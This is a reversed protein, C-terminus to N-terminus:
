NCARDFGGIKRLVFAHSDSDYSSVFYRSVTPDGEFRYKECYAGYFRADNNIVSEVMITYQMIYILIEGYSDHLEVYKNVLYDVSVVMKMPSNMFVYVLDSLTNDNKKLMFTTIYDEYLTKDTEFSRYDINMSMNDNLFANNNGLLTIAEALQMKEYIHSNFYSRFANEYWFEEFLGSINDYKLIEKLESERFFKVSSVSAMLASKFAEKPMNKLLSDRTSLTRIVCVKKDGDYKDITFYLTQNIPVFRKYHYVFKTKGHNFSNPKVHAVHEDKDYYYVKGM